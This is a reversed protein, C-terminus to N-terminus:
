APLAAAVRSRLMSATIWAIPLGVLVIHAFLQTAISMASPPFAAPWRMPVVVLNMLAYTVLGYIVGWKLPQATLAPMRTAAFVYAAVMVAMLTFHVALGLAAGAAGWETAPPFPGSAVYRLMNAPARGYALTLIAAFLIDLTGAALTGALFPKLM